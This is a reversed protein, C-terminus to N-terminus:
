LNQNFIELDRISSSKHQCHLIRLIRGFGPCWRRRDQEQLFVYTQKELLIVNFKLVKFIIGM